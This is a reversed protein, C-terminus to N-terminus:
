TFGGAGFNLSRPHIPRPKATPCPEEQLDGAVQCGARPPVGDPLGQRVRAFAGGRRGPPGMSVGWENPLHGTGRLGQGGKSLGRSDPALRGHRGTDWECWPIPLPAPCSWLWPIRRGIPVWGPASDRCADTTRATSRRQSPQRGSVRTAGSAPRVHRTRDPRTAEDGDATHSTGCGRSRSAGAQRIPQRARGAGGSTVGVLPHGRWRGSFSRCPPLFSAGCSGGKARPLNALHYHM